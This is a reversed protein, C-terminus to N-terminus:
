APSVRYGSSGDNCASANEIVLGILDIGISGVEERSKRLGSGNGHPLGIQLTMRDPAETGPCEIESIRITSEGIDVFTRYVLKGTWSRAFLFVSGHVYIDWKVELADSKSM